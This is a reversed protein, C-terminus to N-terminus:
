RWPGGKEGGVGNGGEEGQRTPGRGRRERVDNRGEM